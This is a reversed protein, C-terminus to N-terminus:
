PEKHNRHNRPKQRRIIQTHKVVKHPQRTFPQVSIRRMYKNVYRLVLDTLNLM